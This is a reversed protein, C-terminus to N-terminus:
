INLTGADRTNGNSCSDKQHGQHRWPTLFDVMTNSLDVMINPLDVMADTLDVRTDPLDVMFNPLDVMTYPSTPPYPSM